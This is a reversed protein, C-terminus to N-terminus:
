IITHGSWAKPKDILTPPSPPGPVVPETSVFCSESYDSLGGASRAAVRVGYATGPSLGDCLYETATTQSSSSNTPNASPSHNNDDASSGVANTLSSGGSCRIRM